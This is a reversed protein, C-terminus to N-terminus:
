NNNNYHNEYPLYLLAVVNTLEICFNDRSLYTSVLENVFELCVFEFQQEISWLPEISLNLSM